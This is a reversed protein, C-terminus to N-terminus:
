AVAGELAADLEVDSVAESEKDPTKLAMIRLEAAHRAAEKTTVVDIFRIVRANSTVSELV